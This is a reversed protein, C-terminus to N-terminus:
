RKGWAPLLSTPLLLSWPVRNARQSSSTSPTMTATPSQPDHVLYLKYSVIKAFLVVLRGHGQDVAAEDVVSAGGRGTLADPRAIRAVLMETRTCPGSLITVLHALHDPSTRAASVM